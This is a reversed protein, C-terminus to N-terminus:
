IWRLEPSSKNGFSIGAILISHRFEFDSIRIRFSILLKGAERISAVKFRRSRRFGSPAPTSVANARASDTAHAAGGTTGVAVGIGVVSGVAAAVATAVCGEVGVICGVVSGVAGTVSIEGVAFGEGFGVALGVGTGV